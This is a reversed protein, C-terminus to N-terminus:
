GNTDKGECCKKFKLGSGCPCPANRGVKLSPVPAVQAAAAVGVPRENAEQYGQAVRWLLKASPPGDRGEIELSLMIWDPFREFHCSTATEEDWDLTVDLFAEDGVLRQLRNMAAVFKALGDLGRVALSIYAPERGHGFCSGTEVYEDMRLADVLPAIEPDLRKDVM